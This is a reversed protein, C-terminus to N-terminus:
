AHNTARAPRERVGRGVQFCQRTNRQGKRNQETRNTITRIDQRDTETERERNREPETNREKRSYRKCASLSLAFLFFPFSFFSRFLSRMAVLCCYVSELREKKSRVRQRNEPTLAERFLKRSSSKEGLRGDETGENATLLSFISLSFSPSAVSVPGNEQMM